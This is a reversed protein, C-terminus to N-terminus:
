LTISDSYNSCPKPAWYVIILILFGWLLILAEILLDNYYGM